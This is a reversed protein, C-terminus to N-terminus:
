GVAARLASITATLVSCGAAPSHTRAAAYKHTTATDHRQAAHCKVMVLRYTAGPARYSIDLRTCNVRGVPATPEAAVSCAVDAKGLKVAEARTATAARVNGVNASKRVSNKGSIVTARPAARIASRASIVLVRGSLRLGARDGTTIQATATAVWRLFRRAELIVVWPSGATKAAAAAAPDM